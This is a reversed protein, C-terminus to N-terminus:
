YLAVTTGDSLRASPQAAGVTWGFWQVRQPVRTWLYLSEALKARSIRCEEADRRWRACVESWAQPYHRQRLHIPDFGYWEVRPRIVPIGRGAALRQVRENLALARDSIEGLSLTCGPFLLTRFFKYRAPTLGSINEVPLGTVITTSQHAALRDLCAEVWGTITAVSHGYLLDNGIDTVLAATPLAPARRLTEWLGSPLIGPIKRM